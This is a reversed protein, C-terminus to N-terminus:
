VLASSPIPAKWGDGTCQKRSLYVHKVRNVSLSRFAIWLNVNLLSLTLISARRGASGLKKRGASVSRLWETPLIAVLKLYISRILIKVPLCDDLMLGTYFALRNLNDPCKIV